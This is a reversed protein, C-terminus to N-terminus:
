TLETAGEVEILAASRFDHASVFRVAREASIKGVLETKSTGLCWTPGRAVLAVLGLAISAIVRLYDV